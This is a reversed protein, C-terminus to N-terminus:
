AGRALCGNIRFTESSINGGVLLTGTATMWIYVEVYDTSGNLYITMSGSTGVQANSTGFDSVRQLASGNKYIAVINRTVSASSEFWGNVNIQYYGAVTPTFRSSAFNSNTDYDETGFTVKTFTGSSVSQASSAYASFAPGSGLAAVNVANTM